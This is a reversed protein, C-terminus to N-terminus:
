EFYRIFYSLSVNLGEALKRITSLKIDPNEKSIIRYLTSHGLGSRQALLYKTISADDLARTIAEKNTPQRM